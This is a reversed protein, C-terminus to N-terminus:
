NNPRMLSIDALASSPDLDIALDGLSVIGIVQGDDCIPLRRLANARMLAVADDVTATPALSTLEGSCIDGLRVESPSRDEAVARLVIDRDTVIGCVTGDREVLVDGVDQDRMAQAADVLSTTAPYTTPNLTMIEQISQPM